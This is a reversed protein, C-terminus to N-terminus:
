LLIRDFHCSIVDRLSQEFVKPGRRIEFKMFSLVAYKLFLHHGM